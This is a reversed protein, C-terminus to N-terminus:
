ADTLQKALEAREADTLPDAEARSTRDRTAIFYGALGVGFGLVLLPGAWLGSNRWSFRPRLLVFEGYRSVLYERTEAETAGAELQERVVRVMDQALGADSDAISQNKCVVCRITKAVARVRLDLDDEAISPAAEGPAAADQAAATPGTLLGLIAALIFAKYKM